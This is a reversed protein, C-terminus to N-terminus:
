IITSNLFWKFSSYGSFGFLLSNFYFLIFFINIIKKTAEISLNKYKLKNILDKLISIKNLLHQQVPNNACIHM